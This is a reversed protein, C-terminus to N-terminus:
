RFLRSIFNDPLHRSETTYSISDIRGEAKLTGSGPDFEGACLGSGKVTLDGSETFLSIVTDTVSVVSRVGTILIRKRDDITVSSNM